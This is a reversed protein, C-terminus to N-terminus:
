PAPGGQEAQEALQAEHRARRRAAYRRVLEDAIVGILIVTGITTFELTTDVGLLNTSNYLIRIMASGIVAGLISGEGGRLSCGGLVAGAIAYLEYFNGQGSPQVSNGDLAFLVGAVGAAGSCLVYALVEMRDTNIGSLRAAQRNRGLALLYRGYITQNLFVSAVLAIAALIFFPTPVLTAGLPTFFVTQLVMRAGTQHFGALAAPGGVTAAALPMRAHGGAALIAKALWALAAFLGGLSVFVLVARVAPAWGRAASVWGLDTRRVVLAAAVVLGAAAILVILPFLTRRPDHRFGLVVAWLAAPLFLCGGLVLMLRQPLAAASPPVTIKWTYLSQGGITVFPEGWAVDWGHWYRSGGIVVLVTGIVALMLWNSLTLRGPAEVLKSREGSGRLRILGVLAWLIVGAGVLLLVLAVSCPLGTALLRFSDDYATGFGQTQDKTWYRALGRYILLGCLTVVFPQLNLRTILLGHILGLLLALGIVTITALWAPMGGGFLAQLPEPLNDAVLLWPLLTGVLGIVSGISLDIGGTIIVIAVGVGIIGFLASWRIQNQINFPLTFSDTLLATAVCIYILLLLIGAIKNM